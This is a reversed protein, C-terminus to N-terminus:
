SIKTQASLMKIQNRKETLRQDDRLIHDLIGNV